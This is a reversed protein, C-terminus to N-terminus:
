VQKEEQDESDEELRRARKKYLSSSVSLLLLTCLFTLVAPFAMILLVQSLGYKIYSNVYCFILNFVAVAVAAALSLRLNTGADAKLRRDWVGNRICSVVMVLSVALFCSLEGTLEGRTKGMLLQILIVAALMIYLFWFCNKEIHLLKQEQMEDLNNKRHKMLM